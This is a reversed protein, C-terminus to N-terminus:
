ERVTEPILAEELAVSLDNEVNRYMNHLGIRRLMKAEDLTMEVIVTDPGVASKQRRAKM